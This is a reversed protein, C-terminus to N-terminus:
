RIAAMEPSMGRDLRYSLTKQPIKTVRSLEALSIIEGKFLIRRTHSLHSCQEKPTAWRCNEKFYGLKADIRDISTGQPRDGMDELFLKFDHWKECVTIGKAGYNSYATCKPNECRQLMHNWTRYTSSRTFKDNGGNGHKYSTVTNGCSRSCYKGRGLILKSKYTSFSRGCVPCKVIIPM